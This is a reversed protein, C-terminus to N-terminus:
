GRDGDRDKNKRFGLFGGAGATAGDPLLGIVWSQADGLADMVGGTVNKVQEQLNANDFVGFYNVAVAGATLALLLGIAKSRTRRFLAGVVYGGALSLGLRAAWPGGSAIPGSDLGKIQAYLMAIGGLVAAGLGLRVTTSQLPAFDDDDKDRSAMGATDSNGELVKWVPDPRGPLSFCKQRRM